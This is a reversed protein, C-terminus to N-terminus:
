KSKFYNKKIKELEMRRIREKENTISFIKDNVQKPLVDRFADLDIM